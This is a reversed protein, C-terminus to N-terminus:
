KLTAVLEKIKAEDPVSHTLLYYWNFGFIYDVIVDLNRGQLEGRAQARQLIRILYARRGPMFDSVFTRLAHEDNQTEALINRFARGSATTQWLVWLTQLWETIERELSGQDEIEMKDRTERDFLEILIETKNKWWRYITPKGAGSIKSIQEITLKCYGDEQLITAAANIIAEHTTANRPRRQIKKEEM